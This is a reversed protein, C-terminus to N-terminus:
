SLMKKSLNFSFEFFLELLPNDFLSINVQKIRKRAVCFAKCNINYNGKEKEKEDSKKFPSVFTIKFKKELQQKLRTHGPDSNTIHYSTNKKKKQTQM